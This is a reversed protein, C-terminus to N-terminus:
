HCKHVPPNPGKKQGSGEDMMWVRVNLRARSTATSIFLGFLNSHLVFIDLTRSM